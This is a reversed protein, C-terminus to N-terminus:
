RSLESFWGFVVNVQAVSPGGRRKVVVLEGSGPAATAAVVDNAAFLRRPRGFVPEAGGTVAVSLCEDDTLYFLERGDPSWFPAHGGDTSVQWRPGSGPYARVFVENRRSENSVFAILRGDPSFAPLTEDFRTKLWPRPEAEGVTLLWIDAGTEPQLETFALV